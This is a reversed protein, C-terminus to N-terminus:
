ILNYILAQFYQFRPFDGVLLVWVLAELLNINKGFYPIIYISHSLFFPKFAIWWTAISSEIIIPELMAVAQVELLLM